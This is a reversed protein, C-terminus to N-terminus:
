GNSVLYKFVGTQGSYTCYYTIQIKQTCIYCHLSFRLWKQTISTSRATQIILESHSGIMSFIQEKSLTQQGVTTRLRCSVTELTM